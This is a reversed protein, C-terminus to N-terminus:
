GSSMTLDHDQSRLLLTSHDGGLAAVAACGSCRDGKMTVARRAGHNNVCVGTRTLRLSWFHSVIGFPISGLKGLFDLQGSIVRLAVSVLRRGAKRRQSVVRREMNARM